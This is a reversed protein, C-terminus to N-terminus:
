IFLRLYRGLDPLDSISTETSHVPCSGSYKSKIIPSDYSTEREGEKVKAEKGEGHVKIGSELCNIHVPNIRCNKMIPVVMTRTMDELHLLRDQDKLWKLNM